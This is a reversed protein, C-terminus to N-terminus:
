GISRVYTLLVSCPRKRVCKFQSAKKKWTQKNTKKLNRPFSQLYLFVVFIVKSVTRESLTSTFRWAWQVKKEWYRWTIPSMWFTEEIWWRWFFSTWPWRRRICNGSVHCTDQSSIGWGRYSSATDQHQPKIAPLHIWTIGLLMIFRKLM